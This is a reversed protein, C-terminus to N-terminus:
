RFQQKDLWSNWNIHGDDFGVVKLLVLPVLLRFEDEHDTLKITIKRGNVTLYGELKGNHFVGNRLAAYTQFSTKLDNNDHQRMTFGFRRLFPAAIAALGPGYYKAHERCLIELASFDLYYTLDMYPMRLRWSEVHRYFARSFGTDANFSDDQLRDLCLNLLKELSSPENVPNKLMVIPGTSQRTSYEALRDAFLGDLDSEDGFEVEKCLSLDAWRQQGFTLAAALEFLRQKDPEKDAYGYGTLFMRNPDRALEIIESRVIRRPVLQIDDVLMPALLEMGYVGFAFKRTM